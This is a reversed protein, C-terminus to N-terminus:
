FLVYTTDLIIDHHLKVCNVLTASSIPGIYHKLPTSIKLALDTNPTSAYARTRLRESKFFQVHAQVVGESLSYLELLISRISGEEREITSRRGMEARAEKDQDVQFELLRRTERERKLQREKELRLEEQKRWREEATEREIRANLLAEAMAYAEQEEAKLEARVNQIGDCIEDRRHTESNEFDFRVCAEALLRIKERQRSLLWDAKEGMKIEKRINLEDSIVSSKSSAAKNAFMRICELSEQARWLDRGAKEGIHLRERALKCDQRFQM